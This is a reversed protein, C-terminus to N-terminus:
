TASVTLYTQPSIKHLQHNLQLISYEIIRRLDPRMEKSINSNKRLRNLFEFKNDGTPWYGAAAIEDGQEEETSRGM